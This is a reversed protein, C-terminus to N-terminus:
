VVSKGLLAEFRMSQNEADYYPYTRVEMGASRFVGQHNPWTPDSVWVSADPNLGKSFEAGVRLAGTGGPAHITTARGEKVIPHDAGFLCSQVINGFSADGGIGLYAKTTEQELWMREAQKVSKLVPNTGSEDMYVGTTLNIKKPNSDGRFAETLGLIPDPPAQEVASFPHFSM